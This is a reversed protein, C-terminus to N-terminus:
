HMQSVDTKHVEACAIPRPQLVGAGDHDIVPASASESGLHLSKNSALNHSFFRSSVKCTIIPPNPLSLVNM